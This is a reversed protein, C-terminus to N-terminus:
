PDDAFVRCHDALPIKAVPIQRLLIGGILVVRPLIGGHCTSEELPQDDFKKQLLEHFLTTVKVRKSFTTM